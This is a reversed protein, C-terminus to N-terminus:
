AVDAADFMLWMTRALQIVVLRGVGNSRDCRALDYWLTRNSPADVGIHRDRATPLARDHHEISKM